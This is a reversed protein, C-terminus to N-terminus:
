PATRRPLYAGLIGADSAYLHTPYGILSVALLDEVRDKAAGGILYVFNWDHLSDHRMRQIAKERTKAPFWRRTMEATILREREAQRAAETDALWQRCAAEVAAAPITTYTM